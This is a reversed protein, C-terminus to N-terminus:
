ARTSDNCDLESDVCDSSAPDGYGDIIMTLVIVPCRAASDSTTRNMRHIQSADGNYSVHLPIPGNDISGGRLVRTVGSAPGPPDYCTCSVGGGPCACYSFDGDFCQQYYNQWTFIVLDSVWEWVNGAVDYLGYGNPPYSGVATTDNGEPDGSDLYNADAGTLTNGWPYRKYESAPPILGGRGAYEWEAETPLRKGAWTCYEGAQYWDVYIVPYDDYAPNGYYSPRTYSSSNVPASCGGANV